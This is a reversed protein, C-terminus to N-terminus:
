FFGKAIGIFANLAADSANELMTELSEARLNFGHEKCEAIYQRTQDKVRQIELMERPTLSCREM